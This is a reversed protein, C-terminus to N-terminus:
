QYCKQIQAFFGFVFFLNKQINMSVGMFPIAELPETPAHNVIGPTEPLMILEPSNSEFPILLPLPSGFSELKHSYLIDSQILEPGM